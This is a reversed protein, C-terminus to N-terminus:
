QSEHFVPPPLGLQEREWRIQGRGALEEEPFSKEIARGDALGYVRFNNGEKSRPSSERLILSDGPRPGGDRVFEFTYVGTLHRGDRILYDRLEGFDSPTKGEHDVAFRECASPFEELMTKMCALTDASLEEAIQPETKPARAEKEMRSSRRANEQRLKEMLNTQERLLGIHSRLRLLESLEERSLADSSVRVSDTTQSSLARLRGVQARLSERNRRLEAAFHSRILFPAAVCALALLWALGSILFRSKM